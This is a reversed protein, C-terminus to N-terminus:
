SIDVLTKGLWRVLRFCASSSSIRKLSLSMTSRPSLSSESMSESAVAVGEKTNRRGTHVTGLGRTGSNTHTRGVCGSDEGPDITELPRCGSIQAMRLFM